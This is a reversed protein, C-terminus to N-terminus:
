SRRGPPHAGDDVDHRAHLDGLAAPHGERGLDAISQAQLRPHGRRAGGGRPRRRNLRASAGTRSAPREIRSRAPESVGGRRPTVSSSMSWAIASPAAPRPGLRHDGDVRVDEGSQDHPVVLVLERSRASEDGPHDRLAVRHEHRVHDERFEHPDEVTGITRRRSSRAVGRYFVRRAANRRGRRHPSRERDGRTHRPASAALSVASSSWRTHWWGRALRAARKLGDASAERAGVVSVRPRQRLRL